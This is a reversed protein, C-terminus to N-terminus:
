FFDSNEGLYITDFDFIHITAAMATSLRVTVGMTFSGSMAAINMYNKM